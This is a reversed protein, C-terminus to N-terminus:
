SGAIWVQGTSQCQKISPHTSRALRSALAATWAAWEAKGEESQQTGGKKALLKVIDSFFFPL